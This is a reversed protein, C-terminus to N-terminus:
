IYIYIYNYKCICTYMFEIRQWTWSRRSQIKVCTCPFHLPLVLVPSPALTSKNEKKKNWNWFSLPVRFPYHMIQNGARKIERMVFKQCWVMKVHLILVSERGVPLVIQTIWIIHVAGFYPSISNPQFTQQVGQPKHSSRADRNDRSGEANTEHSMWVHSM